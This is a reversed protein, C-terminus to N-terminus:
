HTRGDRDDVKRLYIFNIEGGHVSTWDFGEYDEAISEVQEWVPMRPDRKVTGRQYKAGASVITEM